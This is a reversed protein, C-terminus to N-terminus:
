DEKFFETQGYVQEYIVVSCWDKYEKGDDGIVKLHLIYTGPGLKEGAAVSSLPVYVRFERKNKGSEPYFNLGATIDELSSRIASESGNILKIIKYFNWEYSSCKYPAAVNISGEASAFYTPDLMNEQRFGTDGPNIILENNTAPEFHSNYDELMTNINDKCGTCLLLAGLASFLFKQMTMGYRKMRM